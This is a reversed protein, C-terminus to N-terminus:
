KPCTLRNEKPCLSRAPAPKPKPAPKPPPPPPPPAVEPPAHHVVTLKLHAGEGPAAPEKHAPAEAAGEREGRLKEQYARKSAQIREIEAERAEAEAQQRARARARDRARERALEARRVNDREQQELREQKATQAEEEENTRQQIRRADARKRANERVGDPDARSIGADLLVREIETPNARLDQDEVGPRAALDLATEGIDTTVGAYAGAGLLQRAIKANRQSAARLLPALRDATYVWNELESGPVHLLLLAVMAEDDRMIARHLFSATRTQDVCDASQYRRVGRGILVKALSVDGVVVAGYLLCEIQEPEMPGDAVARLRRATVEGAKIQAMVEDLTLTACGALLLPAFLAAALALRRLVSAGFAFSRRSKM